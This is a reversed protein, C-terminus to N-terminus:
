ISTKYSNISLRLKYKYVFSIQLCIYHAKRRFLNAKCILMISWILLETIDHLVFETLHTWVISQKHIYIKLHCRSSDGKGCGYALWGAAKQLAGPGHFCLRTQVMCPAMHIGILHIALCNCSGNLRAWMWSLGVSASKRRYTNHSLFQSDNAWASCQRFEPSMFVACMRKLWVSSIFCSFICVEALHTLEWMPWQKTVTQM